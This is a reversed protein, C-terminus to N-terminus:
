RKQWNFTYACNRTSVATATLHGSADVQGDLRNALKTHLVVHGNADVTGTFNGSASQINGNAITLASPTEMPPCQAGGNTTGPQGPYTGDFKNSTQAQVLVPLAASMALAVLCIRFLKRM